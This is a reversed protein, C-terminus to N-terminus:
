RWYPYRLLIAKKFTDILIKESAGNRILSLIDVLNDNRLLCPKIKGDATVRIRTCNKCFETNHMGRVVEVEAVNNGNPIFYKKRRHMNREKIEISKNKLEKEINTLNVHYEEYFNLKGNEVKELEILQLIVSNKSSFKILDKIENENIEKMIVMNLKIPYLGCNIAEHIGSIVKTLNDKRTIRKYINKNLTDFSINVRNLGNKKLDNAFEYLKVGNTTMSVDKMYKSVKKTIDVIDNRLLPEGGTIKIKYIGLKKAIKVITEIEDLTMEHNSSNEGEKHCYFCNLNCKQTVSIRINKTDRNYNDKM